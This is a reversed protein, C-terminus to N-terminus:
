RRPSRCSPVATNTKPVGVAAVFCIADLFSAFFVLYAFNGYLFGLFADWLDDGQQGAWSPGGWTPSLIAAFM